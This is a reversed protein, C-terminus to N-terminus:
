EQNREQAKKLIEKPWKFSGGEDDTLVYKHLAWYYGTYFRENIYYKFHIDLGSPWYGWPNELESLLEKNIWKLGELTTRPNFINIYKVDKQTNAM